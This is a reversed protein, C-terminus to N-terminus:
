SLERKHRRDYHALTVNVVGAPIDHDHLADIVRERAGRLTTAVNRARRVTISVVLDDDGYRGTADTVSPDEQAATEALREIARPEVRVEGREDTVLRLDRRAFHPRPIEKYALYGFLLFAVLGAGAIIPRAPSGDVDGPSLAALWDFASRYGSISNVTAPSAKVALLVTMAGYWILALAFLFTIFRGVVVPSVNERLRQRLM